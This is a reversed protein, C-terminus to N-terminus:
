SRERNAAEKRRQEENLCVVYRRGEVEQRASVNVAVTFPRLGSDQWSPEARLRHAVGTGRREAIPVILGTKEALPILASAELAGPATTGM